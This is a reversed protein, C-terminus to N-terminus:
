SSWLMIEHQFIDKSVVCSIPRFSAGKGRMDATSELEAIKVRCPVRYPDVMEQKPPPSSACGALALTATAFFFLPFIRKM